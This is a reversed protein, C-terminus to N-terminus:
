KSRFAESAVLAQILARPTRAGSGAKALLEERLAEDSFGFPRGLAYAILNEVFGRVFAEEHRAVAERLGFFDTFQSGDPLRGSPDIPHEKSQKIRDKVLVETLEKERWIGAATFHELGFGIPDIRQHCQACQPQETHARLLDRASLLKGAHRSLQPVNAPAPPPPRNLLKRLVWAGREVPSSREGDSGMALVAAMGLLGGRPMGQPVRVREFGRGPPAPLGYYDALLDNIVVEDSTLLRSLPQNRRILDQFTEYVEQRAARQVNDDFSRHLRPNFQFFDLREMQLWQHLFGSTFERVKASALLRDVEGSLVDPKGLVGSKGLGLLREDPPGSTLFFSLRNALEVGTVQHPVRKADPNGSAPSAPPEQLYLFSPSALIVSLPQKLAQEFSEGAARRSEFESVLMKLYPASPEFGRFARQAFRTLIERAYGTTKQAGEGGFFLRGLEPPPWTTMEPGEWEVWDVWLAPPLGHGTSKVSERNLQSYVKGVSHQRERFVLKWPGAEGASAAPARSPIDVEVELVSPSAPTGPVRLCAVTRRDTLREEAAYGVELFWRSPESEPLHGACVRVKYRGPLCERPMAVELNRVPEHPALLVGSRSEPRALYDRAPPLKEIVQRQYFQKDKEDLFKQNPEGGPARRNVRTILAEIETNVRHEPEVRGKQPKPRNGGVVALDLAGRASTLYQEFQESSMFLAAGNTDFEGGGGDNPLGSADVSVGLLERISNVYERKNLRRLSIWGGSDSLAKRAEVMTGSLGELFAQKAADSPQKEEPPPMEGANLVGLVRQWRDATAVESIRSPLDDLRVKGKQKEENHCDFCHEKLFVTAEPPIRVERAPDAWGVGGLGIAFVLLRGLLRSGIQLRIGKDLSM